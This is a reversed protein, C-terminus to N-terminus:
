AISYECKPPLHWYHGHVKQIAGRNRSIAGRNRPVLNDFFDFFTLVCVILHLILNKQAQDWHADEGPLM